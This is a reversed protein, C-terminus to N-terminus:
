VLKVSFDELYLGQSIEPIKAYKLNTPNGVTIHRFGDLRVLVTGKSEIYLAIEYEGPIIHIRPVTFEIKNIGKKITFFQNLYNNWLSTIRTNNINNFCVAITVRDITNESYYELYIKLGDLSNFSATNVYMNEAFKLIEFKKISGIGPEEKNNTTTNTFLGMRYCEVASEINGQFKM